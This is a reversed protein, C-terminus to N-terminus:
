KISEYSARVLSRVFVEAVAAVAPVGRERDDGFVARRFKSAGEPTLPRIKSSIVAV